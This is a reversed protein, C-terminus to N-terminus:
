NHDEDMSVILYERTSHAYGWVSEGARPLDPNEMDESNTGNLMKLFQIIYGSDHCAGVCGTTHM